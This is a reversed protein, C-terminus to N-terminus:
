YYLMHKKIVTKIRMKKIFVDKLVNYPKERGEYKEKGNPKMGWYNVDEQLALCKIVVLLFEISHGSLDMKEFEKLRPYKKYIEELPVLEISDKISKILTLIDEEGIKERKQILDIIVDDIYNLGKEEGDYHITIDIDTIEKGNVKSKKKGDTRIYVNIGDSLTYILFEKNRELSIVGNRAEERKLGDIKLKEMNYDKM